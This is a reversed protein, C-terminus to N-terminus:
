GVPNGWATDASSGSANCISAMSSRPSSRSLGLSAARQLRQEVQDHAWYDFGMGLQGSRHLGNLVDEASLSFRPRTM